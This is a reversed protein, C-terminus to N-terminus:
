VRLGQKLAARRALAQNVAIALLLITGQIALQWIIPVNALQLGSSVMTLILVGLMTGTLSGEGGTMSTGGLVAVTIAQMEMNKGVDPRASFLWASNIIAGVGALTGAIVYLWIRVKKVNIGSLAAARENNGVLYVERGFKTRKMVWTLLLFVPMVVLLVQVPVGFLYEQGLFAFNEPFGSVPFGRTIVLSIAGYAYMTGLTAIFPPLRLQTVILGNVAGCSAAVALAILCALWVNVGARVLLGLIVGTFSLASGLSLDIGAGGGLIVLTQGMGLLALVAGFQTMGLLNDLTLFWPSMRGLILAVIPVMLLLFAVRNVFLSRWNVRSM